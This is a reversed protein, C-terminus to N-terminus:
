KIMGFYSAFIMLVFGSLLQILEEFNCVYCLNGVLDDM